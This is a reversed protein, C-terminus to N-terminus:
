PEPSGGDECTATEYNWRGGGDLCDDIALQRKLFCGVALLIAGSLVWRALRFSKRM